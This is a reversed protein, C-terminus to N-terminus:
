ASHIFKVTMRLEEKRVDIFKVGKRTVEMMGWPGFRRAGGNLEQDLVEPWDSQDEDNYAYTEDAGIWMSGAALTVKGQEDYEKYELKDLDYIELITERSPRASPPYAFESVHKLLIHLTVMLGDYDIYIDSDGDEEDEIVRPSPNCKIYWKNVSGTVISPFFNITHKDIDFDLHSIVVPSLEGIPIRQYLADHFSMPGAQTYQLIEKPRIFDLLLATFEFSKRHNTKIVEYMNQYGSLSRFDTRDEKRKEDFLVEKMVKTWWGEDWAGVRIIELNPMIHIMGQNEKFRELLNHAKECNDLDEEGKELVRKEWTLRDELDMRVYQNGRQDDADRTSQRHQFDFTKVHRLLKIKSFSSSSLSDIGLLFKHPDNFIPHTYLIRCAIDLFRKNVRLVSTLDQQHFEKRTSPVGITPPPRHLISCISTLIEDPLDVLLM